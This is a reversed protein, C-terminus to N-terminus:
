ILDALDVDSSFKGSGKSPQSDCTRTSGPRRGDRTRRMYSERTRWLEACVGGAPCTGDADYPIACIHAPACPTPGEHKRARKGALRRFWREAVTNSRRLRTRAVKSACFLHILPRTTGPEHRGDRQTKQTALVAANRLLPRIGIHLPPYRSVSSVAFAALLPRAQFYPRSYRPDAPTTGNGLSHLSCPQIDVHQSGLPIYMQMQAQWRIPCVPGLTGDRRVIAYTYNPEPEM